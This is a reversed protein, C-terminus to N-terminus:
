TEFDDMSASVGSATTSCHNSDVAPPFLEINKERLFPKIVTSYLSELSNNLLAVVDAFTEALYEHLFELSASNPDYWLRRGAWKTEDPTDGEPVLIKLVGDVFGIPAKSEHLINNRRQYYENLHTALNPLQWQEGMKKVLDRIRGAHSHFVVFINMLKIYPEIMDAGTLKPVKIGEAERVNQLMCIVSELCTYHYQSFLKRKGIDHDSLGSINPLRNNGDNGIYESWIKKYGSLRECIFDVCHRELVDGHLRIDFM